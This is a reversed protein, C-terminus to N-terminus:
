RWSCPERGYWHCRRNETRKDNRRQSHRVRENFVSTSRNDNKDPQEPIRANIAGGVNVGQSTYVTEKAETLSFRKENRNNIVFNATLDVSMVNVKDSLHVKLVPDDFQSDSFTSGAPVDSYVKESVKPYDSKGVYRKVNASNGHELVNYGRAKMKAIFDAYAEETISDYITDSVGTLTSKVSAKASVSGSNVSNNYDSQKLYNVRYFPVMFDTQGQLRAARGDVEVSAVEQKFAKIMGSKKAVQPAQVGTQNEKVVSGACASLFTLSALQIALLKKM